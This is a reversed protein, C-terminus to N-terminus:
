GSQDRRYRWWDSQAVASGSTDDVFIWAPYDRSNLDTYLQRLTFNPALKQILVVMIHIHPWFAVFVGGFANSEHLLQPIESV